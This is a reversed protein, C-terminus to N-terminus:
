TPKKRLAFYALVGLACLAGATIPMARVAGKTGADAMFGTLSLAVGNMAKVVFNFVGFYVATAKHEDEQACRAIAEGEIGLVVAAGPGAAAFVLMATTMPSGIIGQGLLGAGAYAVGLALTAVLTAREWGLWRAFRPVFAFSVLSGVLFPGLLKAVDAKTGALLDTAIFPAASTMMTFSMQSGVYLLILAVFRRNKLSAALMDRLPVHASAQATVALGRPAAFYPLVMLVTGLLGFILAGPLFGLKQVLIPSLVFGFGTALLVGAGLMNSLRTRVADQGGAYDEVLAWYPIAYLTYGVFFVLMGLTLLTWRLAPVMDATPAFILALGVAPVAFFFWILSRRERGKRVWGDGFAGALPDAVADFIRFGLFVMGVVSASFLAGTATDQGKCFYVLWQFFYRAVLMVGLQGAGYLLYKSSPM